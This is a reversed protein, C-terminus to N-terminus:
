EKSCNLDLDNIKNSMNSNIKELNTIEIKLSNINEKLKNIEINKDEKNNKLNQIEMENNKNIRIYKDLEIELNSQNLNYNQHKNISDRLEKKLSEIINDIESCKNNLINNEREM